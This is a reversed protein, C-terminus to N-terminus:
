NFTRKVIETEGGERLWDELGETEGETVKTYKVFECFNNNRAVSCYNNRMQAITRYLYSFECLKVLQACRRWTWRRNKAGDRWWLRLDRYFNCNTVFINRLCQWIRNSLLLLLPATVPAQPKLLWNSVQHSWFYIRQAPETQTILNFSDPGGRCDHRALLVLSM